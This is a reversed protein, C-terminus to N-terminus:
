VEGFHKVCVVNPIVTAMTVVTYSWFLEYFCSAKPIMSFQNSVKWVNWSLIGCEPPFLLSIKKVNLRWMGTSGPTECQCTLDWFVLCIFLCWWWMFFGLVFGFGLCFGWFGVLLCVGCVFFVGFFAVGDFDATKIRSKCKFIISLVKVAKVPSM